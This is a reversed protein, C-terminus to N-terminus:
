VRSLETILKVLPAFYAMAFLFVIFGLTFVVLPFLIQIFSQLRIALRRESTEALEALAWALNGVAASSKLVEADASRILNYNLLSEIWDAGQQV